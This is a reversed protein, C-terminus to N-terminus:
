LSLSEEPRRAAHRPVRYRERRTSQRFLQQCDRPSFPAAISSAAASNLTCKFSATITASAVSEKRPTNAWTAGNSLRPALANRLARALGDAGPEDALWGSQGDVIMEAMGGERSAIVPLGSAMAEICAYPFNDWRSPVVALGARELRWSLTEPRQRGRFHFRQRLNKPIRRMLMARVSRGGDWTDAGIFEFQVGHFEPAVAVAADVWEYVGKRPELRGVFCVPGSNWAREDRDLTHLVGVPYPITAVSGDDLGFHREADRALRRSPCILADAAAISYHELRSALQADARPMSWNNSWGIFDTPSHLQVICPPQRKPGWGLARRLQFFYLPAEYEQAEVVDIGEEEVLREALM